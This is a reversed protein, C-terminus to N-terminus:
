QMSHLRWSGMSLFLRPCYVANDLLVSLSRHQSALVFIISFQSREERNSNKHSGKIM